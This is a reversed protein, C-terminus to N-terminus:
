EAKNRKRFTILITSSLAVVVILPLVIYLITYNSNNSLVTNANAVSIDRGVFNSYGYKRVIYDYRAAFEEYVNGSENATVSALITKEESSLLEYLEEITTWTEETVNLAECEEILSSNALDVYDLLNESYSILTPGTIEILNDYNQISGKFSILGGLKWDDRTPFLNDYLGYIVIENGVIDAIKIQNNSITASVIGSVTVQYETTEKNELGSAIAIIEEITANGNIVVRITSSYNEGDINMTATVDVAGIKNATYNIGDISLIENDSSTIIVEAGEANSTQYTFTGTDGVNLTSVNDLSIAPNSDDFYYISVTELQSTGSPTTAITNTSITPTLTMSTGSVTSTCNELTGAVSDISGGSSTADIVVREILKGAGVSFTIKNKQYVRTYNAEKSGGPMYNNVNTSGGKTISMFIPGVEWRVEATSMSAHTETTLDFVVSSVIPMEEPVIGTIKVSVGAFTAVVTTTDAEIREPSFTFNSAPIVIDGKIQYHGTFTLGTPNFARGIYQTALEGSYTISNLTDAVGEKWVVNVEELYLAGSKSRFGFFEYDEEFTYKQTLANASKEITGLPTLGSEYLAGANDGAFATHSGYINITRGNTTESTFTFEISEVYGASETVILGSNNNSSRMQIANASAGKGKMANGVYTAGTTSSTYSFNGYGGSGLNLVTATLNDTGAGADVKMVKNVSSSGIGVLMALGLTLAFISKLKNSLRM